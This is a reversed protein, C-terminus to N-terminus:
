FSVGNLGIIHKVNLKFCNSWKKILHKYLLIVMVFM